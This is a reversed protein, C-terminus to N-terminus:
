RTPGGPELVAVIAATLHDVLRARHSSGLLVPNNLGQGMVVLVDALEATDEDAIRGAAQGLQVFRHNRSRADAEHRRYSERLVRSEPLRALASRMVLAEDTFVAVLGDVMARITAQLGHDLLHEVTLVAAASVLRDLATDFAAALLGDRGEPFRNYITAVSVGVDAAVQEVTFAGESRLRAVTADVVVRRTRESRGVPVAGSPEVGSDGV